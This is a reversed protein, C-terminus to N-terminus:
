EGEQPPNGGPEGPPPGNPDCPPPGNPDGGHRHGGRGQPRKMETYSEVTVWKEGDQTAVTGEVSVMKNAAQALELGKADLVVNWGGQKRNEIKVATVTGSDNLTVVVRGRIANPDFKPMNPEAQSVSVFIFGVVAVMLSLAVIKKM